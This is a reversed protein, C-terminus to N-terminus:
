KTDGSNPQPFKCEYWLQALLNWIAKALQWKREDSGPPFTIAKAAHRLGHNIPAQESTLDLKKWNDVGYGKGDPGARFAGYDAVKAVWELGEFLGPILDWRVGTEKRRGGVAATLFKPKVIRKTM